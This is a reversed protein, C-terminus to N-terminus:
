SDLTMRLYMALEYMALGAEAVHPVTEFVSASLLPLTGSDGAPLEEDGTDQHGGM